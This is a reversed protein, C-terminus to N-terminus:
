LFSICAHNKVTIIASLFYVVKRVATEDSDHIFFVTLPKRRGFLRALHAIAQTIATRGHPLAKPFFPLSHCIEALVTPHRIIHMISLQGNSKKNVMQVNNFLNFVDLFDQMEGSWAQLKLEGLRELSNATKGKQNELRQKADDYKSQADNVLTEIEEKHTIPELLGM